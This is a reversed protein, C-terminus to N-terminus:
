APTPSVYYYAKQPPAVSVSTLVSNLGAVENEFPIKKAAVVAYVIFARGGVHVFRQVGVRGPLGVELTATSFDSPRLQPFGATSYLGVGAWNPNMELLALFANGPAMRRVSNTGYATASHPPPLAFNAAHVVPTSMAGPPIDHRGGLILGEWGRPLELSIGFGHIQM